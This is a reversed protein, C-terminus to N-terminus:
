AALAVALQQLKSLFKTTDSGPRFEIVGAKVNFTLTRNSGHEQEAFPASLRKVVDNSMAIANAPETGIIAAFQDVGWRGTMAAGPVVTAFRSEFSRLGTDILKASHINRMGALNTVVVLLVSFPSGGRILADIQSNIKQRSEKAADEGSDARRSTRIEEHLLRIEDKLQAIVAQNAARMQELSAEIRSTATRIAGRIEGIDESTAAKSLRQLEHKLGTELETGNATVSSAFEEVAAMAEKIDKRLRDIQERTKQQYDRLEADFAAQVVELQEPEGADELRAKLTELQARFHALQTSDVEVAHQETSRIAQSYCTLAARNFEELRDLETATKRLSILDVLAKGM